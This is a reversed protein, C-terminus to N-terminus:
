QENLPARYSWLLSLLVTYSCPEELKLCVHTSSLWYYTIAKGTFEMTYQALVVEAFMKYANKWGARFM